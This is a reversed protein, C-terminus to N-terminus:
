RGRESGAAPMMGGALDVVCMSGWRAHSGCAVAAHSMHPDFLSQRHGRDRVGDDVILQRVVEAPTSGGYAIDEEESMAFVGARRMRDSLTAGDSGTHGIRGSEEQDELLSRAVRALASNASLPPAPARRELDAIAEEVAAPGEVTMVQPRGSEQAVRGRFSALYTRLRLAYARPDARAANIEALVAPDLGEERSPERSQACPERDAAIATSHSSEGRLLIRNPNAPDFLVEGRELASQPLPRGTEESVWCGGELLDGRVSRAQADQAAGLGLFAAGLLIARLQRSQFERQIKFM